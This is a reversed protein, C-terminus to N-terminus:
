GLLFFSLDFIFHNPFKISLTVLSSVKKTKDLDHEICKIRDFSEMLVRDKERPIEPPKNILQNFVSEIRDLRELCPKVNLEAIQRVVPQNIAASPPPQAQVQMASPSTHVLRRVQVTTFDRTFTWLRTLLLLITKAIYWPTSEGDTGNQLVPVPLGAIMLDFLYCTLSQRSILYAHFNSIKLLVYDGRPAHTTV